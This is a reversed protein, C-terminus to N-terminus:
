ASKRKLRSVAIDGALTLTLYFGHAHRREVILKHGHLKAILAASFKFNGIWWDAGVKKQHKYHDICRLANQQANTLVRRPDDCAPNEALATM